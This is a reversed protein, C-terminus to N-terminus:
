WYFILDRLAMLLALAEVVVTLLESFLVLFFFSFCTCVSTRPPLGLALGNGNQTRVDQGTQRDGLIIELNNQWM